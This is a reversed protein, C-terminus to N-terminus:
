FLFEAVLSKCIKAYKRRQFYCSIKFKFKKFLLSKNIFTYSLMQKHFYLIPM